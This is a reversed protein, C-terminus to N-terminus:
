KQDEKLSDVDIKNKEFHNIKNVIQIAELCNEYDEFKLKKKIFCKKTGKAKNDENNNDKLYSNTKAKLGVFFFIENM